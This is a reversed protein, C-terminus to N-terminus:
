FCIPHHVKLPAARSCGMTGQYVYPVTLELTGQCRHVLACAEADWHEKSSFWCWQSM